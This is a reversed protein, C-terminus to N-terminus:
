SYTCPTNINRLHLSSRQMKDKVPIRFSGLLFNTGLVIMIPPFTPERSLKITYELHKLHYVRHSIFSKSRTNRIYKFFFLSDCKFSVHLHFDFTHTFNLIIPPLRTTEQSVGRYQGRCAAGPYWMALIIMLSIVETASTTLLSGTTPSLSFTMKRSFQLTESASFPSSHAHLRSFIEECM